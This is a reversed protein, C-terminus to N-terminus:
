NPSERTKFSSQIEANDNDSTGCEPPWRDDKTWFEFSSCSARSQGERPGKMAEVNINPSRRRFHCINKNANPYALHFVEKKKMQRGLTMFMKASLKVIMKTHIGKEKERGHLKKTYYCM